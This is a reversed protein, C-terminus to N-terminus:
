IAQIVTPFSCPDNTCDKIERCIDIYCPSFVYRLWDLLCTTKYPAIVFQNRPLQMMQPTDDM